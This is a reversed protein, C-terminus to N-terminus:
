HARKKRVYNFFINSAIGTVILLVLVMKPDPVLASVGFVTTLLFLYWVLNGLFTVLFATKMPLKLWAALFTNLYPFNVMGLFVLSLKEGHKGLEQRITEVWKDVRAIFASGKFKDQLLKGLSFGIYMDFFTAGLWILHLPWIPYNAQRLLLLVAGASIFEQPIFVAITLLWLYM